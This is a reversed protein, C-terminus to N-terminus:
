GAQTLGALGIGVVKGMMLEVPSLATVLIEMIRSSKEEVVGMAVQMGYMLITVYLFILLVYVLLTSQQVVSQNKLTGGVLPAVTLLPTSFLTLAQQPTIGLEAM